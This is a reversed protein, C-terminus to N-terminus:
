KKAEGAAEFAPVDKELIGNRISSKWGVAREFGNIGYQFNQFVEIIKERTTEVFPGHQIVPQDLILGGIIAFETDDDDVMGRIADGNANYFVTSYQPFVQGDIKVAGKMVYLFVNFNTPVEQVFGTGKKDSIYHYFDVPTYALEKVSDIGHSKGSIVKIKLHENPEAIPIETGRLNRYRPACDKMDKPLDVWLQLGVGADGNEMLVPIESHMIGKGATMFQLDGPRLVGKSGLFDEHAIMGERVYTITEQGHHPHDPFGAPHSVTFHDLLLFPSFNRQRMSGVSRRVRAGVGEEQEGAIFHKQITRFEPMETTTTATTTPSITSYCHVVRRYQITNQTSYLSFLQSFSSRKGIFWCTGRGKIHSSDLLFRVSCLQCLLDTM